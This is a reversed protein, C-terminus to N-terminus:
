STTVGDSVSGVPRFTYPNDVYRIHFSSGDPRIVPTPLTVGPTDTYWATDFATKFEGFEDPPIAGKFSDVIDFFETATMDHTAHDPITIGHANYLDTM